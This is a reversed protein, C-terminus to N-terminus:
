GDRTPAARSRSSPCAWGCRRAALRTATSRFATSRLMSRQCGSSTSPSPPPSALWDIREAVIGHQAFRLSCVISPTPISSRGRKYLFRSGPVAQMVRAWLEVVKPGAKVLDCSAGFTVHGARLQPPDVPEPADPRPRYCLFGGALRVLEETHLHETEGPPDTWEDVMRYDITDLGTTNLYGLYAVQVPAPRHAFALLHNHVTHGALDVLIDIGDRRVLQAVQEDSLGTTDRWRDASERLWSAVGSEKWLNTYITVEFASRDHAELLSRAFYSVSHGALEPTVYGIRLRREADRQAADLRRPPLPAIGTGYQEAWRLHEAFVENPDHPSYNMCLLLNSHAAPFDPRQEVARRFWQEAEAPRGVLQVSLATTNVLEPQHEPPVRGSDIVRRYPRIAEAPDGAREFLAGLNAEAMALQPDIALAQKLHPRAKSLEYLDLYAAGRGNHALAYAPDLEVARRYHTIADRTRGLAKSVAALNNHFSADRPRTAVAQELLALAVEDRGRAHEIVGLLHLAAPQDPQAHLLKRVAREADDLHGDEYLEVGRRVDAEGSHSRAVPGNAARQKAAARRQKRNM